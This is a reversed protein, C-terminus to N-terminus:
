IGTNTCYNCPLKPDLPSQKIAMATINMPDTFQNNCFSSTITSGECREKVTDRWKPDQSPVTQVSSDDVSLNRLPQELQGATTVNFRQLLQQM